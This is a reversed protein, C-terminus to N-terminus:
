CTRAEQGCIDITLGYSEALITLRRIDMLRFKSPSKYCDYFRSRGIEAADAVKSLNKTRMASALADIQRQLSVDTRSWRNNERIVNKM